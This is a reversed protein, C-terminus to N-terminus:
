ALGLEARTSAYAQRMPDLLSGFREARGISSDYVPRKVQDASLTPPPERLGAHERQHHRLCADDWVLGASEIIPRLTAAPERALDEYRIEIMRGPMVAHWHQMLWDNIALMTGVHGLDCCWTMAAPVLREFCSLGADFPDRRLHVMTAAPFAAAILGAFVWNQLHKDAVREVGPAVFSDTLRLYGNAIEDLQDGTISSIVEPWRRSADPLNAFPLVQARFANTEGAGAAHPHSAIMKELLTTGSRPMGVIFIPRNSRVTPTPLAKMVEPTFAAVVRGLERKADERVFNIKLGERSRRFCDFAGAYDGQLERLEGLRRMMHQKPTTNRLEWGMAQRLVKEAGGLDGIDVLAESITVAQSATEPSRGLLELARKPDGMQRYCEARASRAETHTPKLEETKALLEAAEAMRGQRMRMMARAFPVEGERPALKGARDLAEEAQTWRSTRAAIRGRLLWVNVDNPAMGLLRDSLQSATALDGVTFASVARQMLMQASDAM